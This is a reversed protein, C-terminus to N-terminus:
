GIGILKACMSLSPRLPLTPVPLLSECGYPVSFALGCVWVAPYKITLLTQKTSGVPKLARRKSALLPDKVRMSAYRPIQFFIDRLGLVSRYCPGSMQSEPLFFLELIFLSLFLLAQLWIVWTYTTHHAIFGSIFPGLFPGATIGMVWLGWAKGRDKRLYMVKVYTAGLSCPACAGFGQFVRAVMMTAYTPAKAVGCTAGIAILISILM